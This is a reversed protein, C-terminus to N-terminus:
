SINIELPGAIRKAGLAILKTEKSQKKYNRDMTLFIDNGYHIHCWMTHIDCLHNLSSRSNTTTTSSLSPFLIDRINESLTVMEDSVMICRNFFSVDMLAMPELRPLHDLGLMSLATEFENYNTPRVRGPLLESAGINAIYCQYSSSSILGRIRKGNSSSENSEILCNHDLTIKLM